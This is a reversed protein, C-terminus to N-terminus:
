IVPATLEIYLRSEAMTGTQEELELAVVALLYVLSFVCTFSM